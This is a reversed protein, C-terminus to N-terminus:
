PNRKIEHTPCNQVPMDKNPISFVSENINCNWKHQGNECHRWGDPPIHPKHVAGKALKVRTLADEATQGLRAWALADELQNQTLCDSLYRRQMDSLGLFFNVISNEGKSTAGKRDAACLHCESVKESLEYTYQECDPCVRTRGARAEIQKWLVHYIPKIMIWLNNLDEETWGKEKAWECDLELPGLSIKVTDSKM